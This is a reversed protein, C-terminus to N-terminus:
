ASPPTYGERQATRIIGDLMSDYSVPERLIVALTRKASQRSIISSYPVYHYKEVIANVKERTEKSISSDKHNVVKSVTAPSVGALQAIEKIDM